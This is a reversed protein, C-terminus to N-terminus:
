VRYVLFEGLRAVLTRGVLSALDVKFAASGSLQSSSVVLYDARWRFGDRPFLLFHRYGAVMEEIEAAPIRGDTDAYQSFFLVLDLLIRERTLPDRASDQVRNANMNRALFERLQLPSNGLNSLTEYFRQIREDRSSVGVARVPVYTYVHSYVPALLLVDPDLSVVVSGQEANEKFWATLDSVGRTDDFRDSYALFTAFQSLFGFGVCVLILATLGFKMCSSIWSPEARSDAVGGDPARIRWKLGADTLIRALPMLGVAILLLWVPLFGRYALRYAFFEGGILDIVIYVFSFALTLSRVFVRDERYSFKWIFIATLV